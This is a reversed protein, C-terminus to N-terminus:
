RQVARSRRDARAEVVDALVERGILDPLLDEVRLGHGRLAELVHLADHGGGEALLEGAGLELRDHGEQGRLLSSADMLQSLRGKPWTASRSTTAYRSMTKPM